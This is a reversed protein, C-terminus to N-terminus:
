NTEPAIAPIGFIHILGDEGAVALLTGDPYFELDIPSSHPRPANLFRFSTIEEGDPLSWFIVDQETAVAMLNSDMSFGLALGNTLRDSSLLGPHKTQLTPQLSLLWTNPGTASLLSYDPSVALQQGTSSFILLTAIGDM